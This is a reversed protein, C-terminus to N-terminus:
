SANILVGKAIFSKIKPHGLDKDSMEVEQFPMFVIAKDVSLEVELKENSANKYKMPSKVKVNADGNQDSGSQNTTNGAAM